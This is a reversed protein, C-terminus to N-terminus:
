LAFRLDVFSPPKTSTTPPARAFENTQAFFQVPNPNCPQFKTYLRKTHHGVRHCQRIKSTQSRPSLKNTFQETFQWNKEIQAVSCHVLAKVSPFLTPPSAGEAGNPYQVNSRLSFHLPRLGRREMQHSCM